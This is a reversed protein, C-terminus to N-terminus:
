SRPRWCVPCSGLYCRFDAAQSDEWWGSNTEASLYSLSLLKEPGSVVEICGPRRAKECGRPAHPIKRLPPSTQTLERERGLDALHQGHDAIRVPERTTWRRSVPRNRFKVGLEM